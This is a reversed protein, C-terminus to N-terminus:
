LSGNNNRGSKGETIFGCVKFTLSIDSWKTETLEVIVCTVTYGDSTAALDPEAQDGGWVEFPSSSLRRISEEAKRDWVEALSLTQLKGAASHSAHLFIVCRYRPVTV